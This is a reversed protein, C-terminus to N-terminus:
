GRRHRFIGRVEFERNEITLTGEVDFLGDVPLLPGEGQGATIESSRTELTGELDGSPSAVTWSVPVDRRAAPFARTEAWDVILQPWRLDQLEMRAWGQYPPGARSRGQPPAALVVQLSDGSTLFAWDGPRTEDAGYARSLDLVMGPVRQDLIYLAADVLRLTQGWPAVWEMLVGGLAVELQRQEEQFLIGEVDGADGVLLRMSGHPLLRSPSRTAPGSWRETYFREWTGSRALWGRAEREAVDGVVTTTMLWPVLFVSDGALTSFVFSREYSRYLSDATADGGAADDGQAPEAGRGGCAASAVVLAVIYSRARRM